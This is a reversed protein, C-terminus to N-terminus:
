KKKVNKLNKHNFRVIAGGTKNMATITFTAQGNRDTYAEAPSINVFKKGNVIKVKVPLNESPLGGKCTLTVTKQTSTERVLRLSKPEVDLKKVKCPLPTPTPAPTPTPIPTTTLTTFSIESGYTTGESNQAVIRYYYTTEASLGSIDISVATDGSGSVTQTSLKNPYSNSTTGYEFWATTNLGNANVTGNLTASNSAINSPLDTTVMPPMTMEGLNIDVQVPTNRDNTTGDGLQGDANYGWTWVTGNPKLAILHHRGAAIAAIGRIETFQVPSTRHGFGVGGESHVWDYDGCVWVSGDSKLAVTHNNGGAIGIIGSLESIQVPTTRDTTTEDGLAGNGNNGWAWVTGDSKLALSHDDGCAIAIIDSLSSVQIPTSRDTTTGDGLQGHNNYGWAWVTGDSKLALSHGWGGAVAKVNSLGTMQVPTNRDTTTGDGLQGYNNRGWVYVTGDSKLALSHSDGADIVDISSLGAVPVPTSRDTKSGDGLQGSWNGGWAWVTGDLKLALNHGGGSDVTSVGSLGSVQIPTSRNTNTGDGLHTYENSGWTWVSGNSKLTMSHYAGGSIKPTATTPTPTPIPTSIGYQIVTFTKGAIAMTGTRTDAGPNASVSYSVTGTGTGSSGSTVMIWDTNSTATWNCSDSSTTVDAKGSGGSANFSANTGNILNYTCNSTIALPNGTWPVESSWNGNSCQVKLYINHSGVSLNDKSFSASTGIVGDLSSRWSYATISHGSSDSGTGSFNVTTEQPVPNPSISNITAAVDDVLVTNIVTVSKTANKTIGGITYSASVTVSTDSMVEGASFLGFISITTAVSDESWTPAVAQSSGDSFFATASYQTTSNENVSSAGSIALSTLTPPSPKNIVIVYQSESCTIGGTTYSASVTVTTDSDVGGATLLGGSSISTATSNESWSPTVLQSTGDSFIATATFQGSSNENMSTPGSITLYSLLAASNVVTIPYNVTFVGYTATITVPTDSNVIGTTLLGSSSITTASSNENWTPSVSQISGDCNVVMANYQAASNEAVNTPGGVAFLVPAVPNPVTAVVSVDDIRFITYSSSDTDAYFQLIVNQGKYAALDATLDISVLSYSGPTNGGRDAESFTRLKKILIDSPTRLNIDMKDYAMAAGPEASVINLYFNLVVSTEDAPITITQHLSGLANFSTSTRDGVYAYWTGGPRPYPGQLIGASGSTGGPLTNANWIINGSEFGGNLVVNKTNNGCSASNVITVNASASKTIGGSTYSAMVTVVTDSSVSGAALLGSSSISTVSSNESWSTSSTVTSSSGDSFHATATFQGNGNEAITAPGSISLGTLQVSSSVVTFSFPLSETSGNVVKVKWTGTASQVTLNYQMSTATVNIPTRPYDINAPDYFILSSANPDSSPLFNSGYITILKPSSSTPLTAPSVSTITPVPLSSVQLIAKESFVQGASNTVRVVYEGADSPLISDFVLASGTAQYQQGNKFWQYRLEQSSIADISLTVSQGPSTTQSQPDTIIKPLFAFEAILSRYWGVQIFNFPCGTGYLGGPITQGQISASVTDAYFEIPGSHYDYYKHYEVEPVWGWDVQQNIDTGGEERWSFMKVQTGWTPTTPLWYCISFNALPNWFVGDDAFYNEMRRIRDAYSWSTPEEMAAQSFLGDGRKVDEPIFPDLLTIQVIVYPNNENAMLTKAAERACWAGASHAIFHVFRLNPSIQALQVGLNSGHGKANIAAKTANKLPGELGSSDWNILGTSADKEWHYTILKKDSNLLKLKLINFLYYLAPANCDDEYRNYEESPISDMATWGHILVVINRASEDIPRNDLENTLSTPFTLQAQAFVPLLVFIILFSISINKIITNWRTWGVFLFTIWDLRIAASAAFRHHLFGSLKNGM